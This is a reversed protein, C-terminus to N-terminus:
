REKSNKSLRCEFQHIKGKRGQRKSRNKRLQKYPRRLCGNQRKAYKEGKPITEIGAEWVTDPVEMWLEEPVKDILDLGRFRNTLGVTDNYPIQNLDYRFTRTIKGVKKM